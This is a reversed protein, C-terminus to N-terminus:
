RTEPQERDAVRGPDREGVPVQEVRDRVEDPELVVGVQQVVRVEPVGDPVRERDPHDRRDRLQEQCERQRVQEVRREPGARQESHADDQRLHRREDGDRQDEGLEEALVVAEDVVHEAPEPM